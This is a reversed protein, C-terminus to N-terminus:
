LKLPKEMTPQIKVLLSNWLRQSCCAWGEDRGCRTAAVPLSHCACAARVSVHMCCVSVLVILILTVHENSFTMSYVIM